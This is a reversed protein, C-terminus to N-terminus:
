EIPFYDLQKLYPSIELISLMPPSKGHVFNEQQLLVNQARIIHCSCHMYPQVYRCALFCLDMKCLSALNARCAPLQGCTSRLVLSPGHAYNKKFSKKVRRYVRLMVSEFAIFSTWVNLCIDGPM